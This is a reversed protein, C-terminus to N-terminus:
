RSLQITLLCLSEQLAEVAHPIGSDLAVVMQPGLEVSQEATSFRVKGSIAHLTIPGPASHEHLKDGTQMALLVVQLGPAKRLTISNRGTVWAPEARLQTATEALDFVQLAEHLPRETEPKQRATM